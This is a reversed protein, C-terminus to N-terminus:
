KKYRMPLFLKRYKKWWKNLRDLIDETTINIKNSLRTVYLICYGNSINVVEINNSDKFYHQLLYILIKNYPISIYFNNLWLFPNAIEYLENDKSFFVIKHFYKDNDIDNYIDDYENKCLRFLSNINEEIDNYRVLKNKYRKELYRLINLSEISSSFIHYETYNSLRVIYDILGVLYPNNHYILLKRKKYKIKSFTNCTYFSSFRRIEEEIYNLDLDISINLPYELEINPIDLHSIYVKNVGNFYRIKIKSLDNLERYEKNYPYYNEYTLYKWLKSLNFRGKINSIM